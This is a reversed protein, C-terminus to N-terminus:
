SAFRLLEVEFLFFFLWSLLSNEFEVKYLDCVCSACVQMPIAVKREYENLGFSRRSRPRLRSRSLRLYRQRLLPGGFDSELESFREQNCRLFIELPHRDRIRCNCRCYDHRRSLDQDMAEFGPRARQNEPVVLFARSTEIDAHLQIDVRQALCQSFYERAFFDIRRLGSGGNNKSPFTEEFATPSRAPARAPV